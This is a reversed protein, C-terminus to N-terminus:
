HFFRIEPADEQKRKEGRKKESGSESGGRGLATQPRHERLRVEGPEGAEGGIHIDVVGEATEDTVEIGFLEGQLFVPLITGDVFGGAGLGTQM